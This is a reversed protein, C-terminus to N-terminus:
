NTPPTEAPTSQTTAPADATPPPDPTQPPATPFLAMGAVNYGHLLPQGGVIQFTFTEAMDGGECQRHYVVVVMHGGTGQTSRWNSLDRAPASCNRAARVVDNLRKIDEVSSANRFGQSADGVIEVDRGSSQLEYFRAVAAEVAGMNEQSMCAGLALAAAFVWRKM